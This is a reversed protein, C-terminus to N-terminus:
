PRQIKRQIQREADALAQQIDKDNDLVLDLQKRVIEAAYADHKNAVIAPMTNAATHWLQRAPQNGLYPVPQSMLDPAQAALLAPFTDLKTFLHRQVQPALTMYRIFDWAEAKHAANQPIAYYSGGWNAYVNGPLQHARWRGADQPAIWSALHDTFWAGMMLTAVHGRRISEAWDNSWIQLRGDLGATRIQKALTFATVFRPSNVLVRGAADFYIGEGSKIGTRIYVDKIEEANALLLIGQAKLKVGAQIFEEWSRTLDDISVGAQQLKDPRYFLTGPGIDAPLAYLQGDNGRGNVVMFPTLRDSYKEADFPAHSLATLKGSYVFKSIFGQEIGVVDAIPTNTKLATYLSNHHDYYSLSVLRIKIEPNAKEYESIMERVSADFNPYSAITLTTAISDTALLGLWIAVIGRCIMNGM